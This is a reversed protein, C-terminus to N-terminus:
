PQSTILYLTAALGLCLQLIGDLTKYYTLVYWVALSSVPVLLRFGAEVM